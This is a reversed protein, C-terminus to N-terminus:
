IIAAAASILSVKKKNKDSIVSLIFKVMFLVFVARFAKERRFVPKNEKSGVSKPPLKTLCRHAERSAVPYHHPDLAAGHM